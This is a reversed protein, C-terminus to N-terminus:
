DGSLHSFSRVTFRFPASFCTEPDTLLTEDDRSLVKVGCSALHAQAAGLDRVCFTVAHLVSGNRDLDDAALGSGDPVSLDILTQPGIAVIVGRTGTLRSRYEEQVTGGLIDVYMRIAPDLERTVITMPGLCVLGLPHNDAWWGPNWGPLYRVDIEGSQNFDQASRRPKRRMFELQILSDRPHTYIPQSADPPRDGDPGAGGIVRIGAARLHSWLAAVDEVYWAVSHWHRGYRSFFKGIPRDQWGEVDRRPAMAEVIADAIGLLSAQRNAAAFYNDDMIGRRPQFVDDYWADLPALEDTAHIVHYLDLITGPARM